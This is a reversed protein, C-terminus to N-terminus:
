CGASDNESRGSIAASGDFRAGWTLHRPIAVPHAAIIVLVWWIFGALVLDFGNFIAPLSVHAVPTARSAPTSM